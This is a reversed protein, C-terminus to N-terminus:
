AFLNSQRMYTYILMLRVALACFAFSISGASRICFCKCRRRKIFELPAFHCYCVSQRAIIILHACCLSCLTEICLFRHCESQYVCQTKTPPINTRSHTQNRSKWKNAQCQIRYLARIGLVCLVNFSFTNAIMQTLMFRQHFEKM